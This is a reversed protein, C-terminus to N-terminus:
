NVKNNCGSASIVEAFFFFLLTLIPPFSCSVVLLSLAILYRVNNELYSEICSIQPDVCLSFEKYCTSSSSSMQIGSSQKVYM